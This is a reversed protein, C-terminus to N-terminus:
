NGSPSEVLGRGRCDPCPRPSGDEYYSGSCGDGNCEACTDLGYDPLSGVNISGCDPCALQLEGGDPASLGLGLAFETLCDDCVYTDAIRESLSRTDTDSM